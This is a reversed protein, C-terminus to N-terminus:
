EGFRFRFYDIEDAYIEHIRNIMDNDYYSSYNQGDGVILKPLTKDRFGLKDAVYRFDNELNEFRGIFDLPIKGNKDIIWQLQPKLENQDMHNNIFEKLSCKDPVNFRNRHHCDRMVNKYWSFARSWPNRVFSFKFYEHYTRNYNSQIGKLYRKFYIIFSKPDTSVITKALDALNIPEIKRISRHDQVGRNLKEFNGLKREISTGATKPIHIFICKHQHSIM